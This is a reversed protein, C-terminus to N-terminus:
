GTVESALSELFMANLESADAVATVYDRFSVGSVDNGYAEVLGHLLQAKARDAAAQERFADATAKVEGGAEGVPAPGLVCM